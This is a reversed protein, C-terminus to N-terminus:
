KILEKAPNGVVTMSDPIHKTVVSGAGIMVHNGIKVRQKITSYLGVFSKEGVEVHGALVSAIILSNRGVKVDHGIFAFSDLKVYDSLVTTDVIAKEINCLAGIEVNNGIEISGLFPFRFKNGDEDDVFAFGDTGITTNERIICNEGIIVDGTIKVGSKIITNNGITVNGKIVCFPYVIVNEGIIAKKSIYSGNIFDFESDDILDNKIGILETVLEAYALRPNESKIICHKDSYKNQIEYDVPIFVLCNECLDLGEVEDLNKPTLFMISNNKPNIMSSVTYVCFDHTKSITNVNYDFHKDSM